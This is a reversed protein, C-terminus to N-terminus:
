GSPKGCNTFKVSTGPLTQSAGNDSSIKSHISKYTTVTSNGLINSPHMKTCSPTDCSWCRTMDVVNVQSRQNVDLGVQNVDRDHRGPLHLPPLQNNSFLPKIPHLQDSPSNVKDSTYFPIQTSQLPNTTGARSSPSPLSPHFLTEPLDDDNDDDNFSDVSESDDSVFAKFLDSFSYMDCTEGDAPNVDNNETSISEADVRSIRSSAASCAVSEVAIPTQWEILRLRTENEPTIYFRILM